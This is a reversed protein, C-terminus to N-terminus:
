IYGKGLRTSYGQYQNYCEETLMYEGVISETVMKLAKMKVLENTTTQPHLDAERAISGPLRGVGLSYLTEIIKLRKQDMTDRAIRMLTKMESDEVKAHKRVIALAIALKKLQKVLRSPIEPEVLDIDIIRGQYYNCLVSSIGKAVLLSIDIIQIGQEDIIMPIEKYNLTKLYHNTATSLQRRIEQEKGLNQLSKKAVELANPRQRIKLLREGLSAHARVYRDIVPTVCLILGITATV